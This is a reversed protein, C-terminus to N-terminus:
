AARIARKQVFMLYLAVVEAVIVDDLDSLEGQPHADLGVSALLLQARPLVRVGARELPRGHETGVLQQHHLLFGLIFLVLSTLLGARLYVGYMLKHDRM